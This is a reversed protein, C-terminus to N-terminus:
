GVSEGWERALHRGDRLQVRESPRKKGACLAAVEDARGAPSAAEDGEVTKYRCAQPTVKDIFLLRTNARQQVLEWLLIPPLKLLTANISVYPVGLEEVGDALEIEDPPPDASEGM